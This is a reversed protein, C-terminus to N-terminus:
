EEFEIVGQHDTSQWATADKMVLLKRHPHGPDRHMELTRHSKALELLVSRNKDILGVSSEREQAIRDGYWQHLCFWFCSTVLCIILLGCLAYTGFHIRRASAVHEHLTAAAQKSQSIADDFAKGSDAFKALHGQLPVIAAKEVKTTLLEAIRSAIGDASQAMAKELHEHIQALDKRVRETEQIVQGALQASVDSSQHANRSLGEIDEKLKKIEAAAKQVEAPISEYYSKYLQLSRLLRALEVDKPSIGAEHLTRFFEAQQEGSLGATLEKFQTQQTEPPMSAM